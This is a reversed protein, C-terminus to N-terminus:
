NIINEFFTHLSECKKDFLYPFIDYSCNHKYFITNNQKITKIECSSTYNKNDKEYTVDFNFINEYHSLKDHNFSTDVVKVCDTGFYNKFNLKIENVIHEKNNKFQIIEDLIDILHYQNMTITKSNYSANSIVGNDVYFEKGFDYCIKDNQLVVLHVNICFNDMSENDDDISINGTFKYNTNKLENYKSAYVAFDKIVM